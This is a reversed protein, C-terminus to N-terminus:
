PSWGTRGAKTQECSAKFVEKECATKMQLGAVCVHGLTYVGSGAM